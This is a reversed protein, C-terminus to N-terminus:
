LAYTVGGDIGGSTAGGLLGYLSGAEIQRADVDKRSASQRLVDRKKQHRGDIRAVAGHSEFGGIHPEAVNQSRRPQVEFKALEFQIPRERFFSHHSEGVDSAS